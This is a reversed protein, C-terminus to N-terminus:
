FGRQRPRIRARWSLWYFFRRSRIRRNGSIYNGAAYFTFFLFPFLFLLFFPFPPLFLYLLPLTAAVNGGNIRRTVECILRDRPKLSTRGLKDRRSTDLPKISCIFYFRTLSLPLSLFLSLSSSFYISALLLTTARANASQFHRYNLSSACDVCVLLAIPPV